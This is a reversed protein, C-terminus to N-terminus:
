NESVQKDRTHSERKGMWESEAEEFSWEEGLKIIGGPWPQVATLNPFFDFDDGLRAPRNAADARSGLVGTIHGMSGDVFPLVRVEAGSAKTFSAVHERDTDLVEGTDRSM